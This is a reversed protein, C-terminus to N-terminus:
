ALVDRLRPVQGPLSCPKFRSDLEDALVLDWADRCGGTSGPVCFIFTEGIQGGLARSQLTSVGVTRSSAQHFVVAFGDMERSLLPRVAEPTVDRPSFGTGGTTLVVDVDPDDSWATVQRRIAEVDDPVIARGALRHGAGAVREALLGGSTDTDLTRTDSVTLVAINLPHFPLSPDIGAM